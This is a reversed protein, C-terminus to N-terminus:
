RGGTRAEFRRKYLHALALALADSADLSGPVEKLGLEGAVCQAVQAKDARGNGVLAKKASAPSYQAIDIGAHCACSLVVGRAEGIRLASQVNIAAFAEEVVVVGPRLRQMIEDLQSRLFGLRSTVPMGSPPRLTGAALLRPGEAREVVAGYGMALTGPDIGLVIPWAFDLPVEPLSDLTSTRMAPPVPSREATEFGVSETLGSSRQRRIVRSGCM